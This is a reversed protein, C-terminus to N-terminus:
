NLKGSKTKVKNHISLLIKIKFSTRKFSLFFKSTVQSFFQKKPNADWIICSIIDTTQCWLKQKLIDAFNKPRILGLRAVPVLFFNGDKLHVIPCVKSQVCNYNFRTESIFFNFMILIVYNRGDLNRLGISGM